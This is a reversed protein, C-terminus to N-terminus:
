ETILDYLKFYYEKTITSVERLRECYVKWGEATELESYSELLEFEFCYSSEGNTENPEKWSYVTSGKPTTRLYDRPHDGIGPYSKKVAQYTELQYDTVVPGWALPLDLFSTCYQRPKTNVHLYARKPLTREM